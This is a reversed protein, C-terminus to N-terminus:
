LLLIADGTHIMGQRLIRAYLRSWGPNIKQSMRIFEGDTFSGAITRCPATYSTIQIEVQDGLRLRAGPQLLSLDLGSTLINEGVSGPVIPHGEAQLALLLEMSYLCLARDPGGHYRKDRQVDGLIGLPGVEATGISTKPVGGGSISIRAIHPVAIPMM